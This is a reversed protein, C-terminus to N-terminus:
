GLATGISEFLARGGSSIGGGGSSTDDNYERSRREYISSSSGTGTSSPPDEEFLIGRPRNRLDCEIQELDRRISELVTVALEADNNNTTRRMAAM